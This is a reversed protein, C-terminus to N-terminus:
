NPIDSMGTKLKHATMDMGFMTALQISAHKGYWTSFIRSLGFHTIEEKTVDLKIYADSHEKSLKVATATNGSINIKANPFIEKVVREFQPYNILMAPIRRIVDKKGAGECLSKNLFNINKGEAKRTEKKKYGM